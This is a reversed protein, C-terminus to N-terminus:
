FCPVVPTHVHTHTRTRIDDWMEYYISVITKRCVLVIILICKYCFGKIHNDDVLGRNRM